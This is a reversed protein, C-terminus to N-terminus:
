IERNVKFNKSFNEKIRYKSTNFVVCSKVTLVIVGADDSFKTNM